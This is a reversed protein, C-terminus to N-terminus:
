KIYLFYDKNEIKISFNIPNSENPLNTTVSILELFGDKAITPREGSNDFVTNADDGIISVSCNKIETNTEADIFRLSVTYESITPNIIPEVGENPKKCGSFVGFFFLALFIFPQTFQKM